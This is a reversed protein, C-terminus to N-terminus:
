IDCTILTQLVWLLGILIVQSKTEDIDDVKQKNIEGYSPTKKFIYRETM